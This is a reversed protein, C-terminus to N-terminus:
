SKETPSYGEVLDIMVSKQAEINRIYGLVTEPKKWTGEHMIQALSYGAETMDQAAGVRASHGTWTAYRGKNCTEKKDGHVEAWAASFIRSLNFEDMPKETTVVAQNSRHVRCFVYADAHETLGSVQLWARLRASARPSLAKTLGQGDVQTKTYGINLMISGDRNFMVDKVKLRALNSVRLLTNYAVFLFALNRSDKLQVSANWATDIRNLDDIRFPIAQSLM